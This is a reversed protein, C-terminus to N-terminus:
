GEASKVVCFIVLLLLLLLLLLLSAELHRCRQGKVQHGVSVNWSWDEVRLSVILVLLTHPLLVLQM